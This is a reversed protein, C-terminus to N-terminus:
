NLMKKALLSGSIMALVFFAVQYNGTLLSSIAPGPCVGLLGWGVGFLAAGIMLKKDISKSAPCAIEGGLVSSTRAKILFIYGPIFVALAGGMVFALSPDWAGTINLFGIVKAPSAMGSIVMGIGFVGGSLAVLLYKIVHTTLTKM